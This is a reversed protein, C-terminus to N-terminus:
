LSRIKTRGRKIAKEISTKVIAKLPEDDLSAITQEIFSVEEANLSLDKQRKKGSVTNEKPSVKGLRFRVTRVGYSYLKKLIEEKYFKLEQLWVPSDVNLLLEGNSFTYPSMHYSLPKNFIIEWNKKIEAFKVREEIGINKIIPALLSDAREM